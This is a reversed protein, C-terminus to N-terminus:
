SIVESFFVYKDGVGVILTTYLWAYLSKSCILIDMIRALLVSTGFVCFEKSFDRHDM